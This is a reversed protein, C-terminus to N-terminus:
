DKERDSGSPGSNTSGEGSNSNGPGSNSSGSGSNSSNEQDSESESEIEAADEIEDEVVDLNETAQRTKELAREQSKLILESRREELKKLLEQQTSLSKDQNAIARKLAEERRRLNQKASDSAQQQLKELVRTLTLTSNKADHLSDELEHNLSDYIENELETEPLTDEAKNKAEKVALKALALRLQLVGTAQEELSDLIDRHSKLVNNIEKSLEDVDQGQADADFLEDSALNTENELEGLAINIGETNNRSLMIRLEALREGAIQSHVQAREKPSLTILLRIQQKVKDLFYFPSDPLILGPGATVPPFDLESSSTSEGLVAKKHHAYSAATLLFFLTFLLLTIKLYKGVFITHSIKIYIDLGM